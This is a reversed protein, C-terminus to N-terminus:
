DGIRPYVHLIGDAPIKVIRHVYVGSTHVFDPDLSGAPVVDEAEVITCSAAMAMIPNFNRASQHFQLNGFEDAKWARVFAYDAPLAPEMVYTRGGFDRHEKGEALATGVSAPTYFAPIGAGAARIREALTGQPVLEAEIEGAEELLQLSVPRSPHTGATFAFVVKRVRRDDILNATTIMGERGAGGSNAILTLDSAGQFYLARVLNYPVGASAFGGVMISSGDPIDAVAEEFTAFLKSDL